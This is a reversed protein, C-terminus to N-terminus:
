LLMEDLFGPRGIVGPRASTAVVCSMLSVNCASGYQLILRLIHSWLNTTDDSGLVGVWPAQSLKPTEQPTDLFPSKDKQM